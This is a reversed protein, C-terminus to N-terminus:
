VLDFFSIIDDGSLVPLPESSIPTFVTFTNNLPFFTVNVNDKALPSKTSQKKVKDVLKSTTNDKSASSKTSQKKVKKVPIQANNDIPNVDTDCQLSQAVAQGSKTQYAKVMNCVDAGSLHGAGYRKSIYAARNPNQRCTREHMQVLTASKYFCYRCTYKRRFYEARTEM